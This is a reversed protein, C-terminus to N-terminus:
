PQVETADHQVLPACISEAIGALSTTSECRYGPPCLGNEDCYWSCVRVGPLAELCLRGACGDATACEQLDIGPVSSALASLRARHLTGAETGEGSRDDWSSERGECAGIMVLLGALLPLENRVM